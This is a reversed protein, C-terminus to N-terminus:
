KYKRLYFFIKLFNHFSKKSKIGRMTKVRQKIQGNLNELLNTTYPVNEEYSLHLVASPLVRWVWKLIWEKRGFDTKKIERIKEPIDEIKKTCWLDKITIYIRRNIGKLKKGVRKGLLKELDRLLHVVCRQHPLKQEKIASILGSYGDSVVCIPIYEVEILRRFITKYANKTEKNRILNGVVGISTDYAIVVVKSRGLIRIPTADLLLIRSASAICKHLNELPSQIHNAYEQIQKWKGMKSIGSKQKIRAFTSRDLIWQEAAKRLKKTISKARSFTRGCSKCFRRRKGHM